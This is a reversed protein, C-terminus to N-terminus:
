KAEATMRKKSILLIAAGLMLAIGVIYFITTGIGGTEPLLTGTKNEVKGKFTGDDQLIIESPKSSEWAAKDDAAAVTEPETCTITFEIDAAKNYGAPVTTEVLIYKGAELGSWVFTTAGTIENGVENGEKVEDKYLTFGAGALPTEADGKIEFKDITLKTTYTIVTDEPTSEVKSENKYDLIATNPNGTSGIVADTDLTASFKIVITAGEVTNTYETKFAVDFGKATTTVTYNGTNIETLNGDKDALYAKADGKYTLGASMTDRVVYDTLGKGITIKIQYDVTGNIAADNADVLKEGEVIKKELTPLENKEILKEDSNTNTLSCIAGVTTDVAYYGLALGEFVVTSSDAKKSTKFGTGEAITKAYDVAARALDADADKIKTVSGNDDVKFYQEGVTGKIFSEWGDAITYIGRDESGAVAEFDLMKYVTYDYDEVANEITISGTPTTGEAALAVTGMSLVLVLAMLVAFFKKM